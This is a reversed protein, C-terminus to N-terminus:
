SKGLHSFFLNEMHYLTVYFMIYVFQAHFHMASVVLAIFVVVHAACSNNNGFCM